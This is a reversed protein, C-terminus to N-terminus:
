GDTRIYVEEQLAGNHRVQLLHLGGDIRPTTAEYVASSLCTGSFNTERRAPTSNIELVIRDSEQHYTYDLESEVGEVPFHGSLRLREDKIDYRTKEMPSDILCETKFTSFSPESSEIGYTVGAAAALTLVAAVALLEKLV